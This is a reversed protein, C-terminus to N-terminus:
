SRKPTQFGFQEFDETLQELQSEDGKVEASICVVHKANYLVSPSTLFLPLNELLTNYIKEVLSTNLTAHEFADDPILYTHETKSGITTTVALVLQNTMPETAM